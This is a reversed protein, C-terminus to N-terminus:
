GPRKKLKETNFRQLELAKDTEIGAARILENIEATGKHWPILGLNMLVLTDQSAVILRTAEIFHPMPDIDSPV